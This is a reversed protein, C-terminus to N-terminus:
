KFLGKSGESMMQLSISAAGASEGFLTVRKPDGGFKHINDRVWQLAMQQDFLGANGTIEEDDLALFGLIGVRYNM